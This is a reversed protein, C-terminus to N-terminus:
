QREEKRKKQALMDKKLRRKIEKIIRESNDPGNVEQDFFYRIKEHRLDEDLTPDEIYDKVKMLTEHWNATLPGPIVNPYDLNFGAEHEKFWEYDQGHFIVPRDFMAFDLAISSYDSILVSYTGLTEYIDKDTSLEIRDYGNIGEMIRREYNRWTHPHMRIAFKGNIETMLEQIEPVAELFEEVM